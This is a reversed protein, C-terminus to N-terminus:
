ERRITYNWQPHFAHPALPVAAMEEDTVKIKTPYM